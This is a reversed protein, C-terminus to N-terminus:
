SVKLANRVAGAVSDKIFDKMQGSQIFKVTNLEGAIESIKTDTETKFQNIIENIDKEKLQQVEESLSKIKDEMDTIIFESLYHNKLENSKLGKVFSLNLATPNAPVSVSSYELLEISNYTYTGDDLYNGPELERYGISWANLFGDKYLSFIEEALPTKAFQTKSLYGFGTADIKGWLSKGIVWDYNHSFLVIPNKKYNNDDIVEPNIVENMRDRDMTSIYHVITRDSENVEKEVTVFEKFKTNQLPTM